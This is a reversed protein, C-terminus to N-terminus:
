GVNAHGAYQVECLGLMMLQVSFAHRSSHNGRHKSAGRRDGEPPPAIRQKMLSGPRSPFTNAGCSNAIDPYSEENPLHFIDQSHKASPASMLKGRSSPTKAEFVELFHSALLWLFGLLHQLHKLRLFANCIGLHSLRSNLLSPKVFNLLPM